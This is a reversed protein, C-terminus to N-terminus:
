RCVVKSKDKDCIPPHSARDYGHRTYLDTCYCDKPTAVYVVMGDESLSLISAHAGIRGFAAYSYGGSRLFRDIKGLELSPLQMTPVAPLKYRRADARTITPAFRFVDFTSLRMRESARCAVLDGYGILGVYQDRPLVIGSVNEERMQTLAQGVTMTGAAVPFTRIDM